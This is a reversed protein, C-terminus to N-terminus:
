RADWIPNNGLHLDASLAFNLRFHPVSFIHLCLLSVYQINESVVGYFCSLGSPHKGKPGEKGTSGSLNWIVM